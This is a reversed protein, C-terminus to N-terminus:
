RQDLDREYTHKTACLPCKDLKKSELSIRRREAVAQADAVTKVDIRAGTTPQDGSTKVKAGGQTHLASSYLGKDTSEGSAVPASHKVQPATSVRMKAAMTDLRIRIANERQKELWALLYEGKKVTDTPVERDYWKDRFTAPLAQVICALAERDGLLEALADINMLETQCRQVAMVLEIVQEHPVSKTPRFERLSKIASMIAIERNGYMEELREWAKRPDRLGTLATLAEKPLKMKLQAMELVPTYGEGRCLEKFQSQFESFDEQRGSFTPLKVKEVHGSRRAPPPEGPSETTKSRGEWMKVQIQRVRDQQRGYWVNWQEIRRDQAPKSKLGRVRVWVSSEVEELREM